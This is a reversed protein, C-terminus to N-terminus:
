APYVRHVMGSRRTVKGRLIEATRTIVASQPAWVKGGVIGRAHSSLSVADNSNGPGLARRAIRRGLLVVIKRYAENIASIGEVSGLLFRGTVPFGKLLFFRLNQEVRRFQFGKLIPNPGAFEYEVLWDHNNWRRKALPIEIM